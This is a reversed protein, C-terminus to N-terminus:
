RRRGRMAAAASVLGIWTLATAPEPIPRILIDVDSRVPLIPNFSPALSGGVLLVEASGPGFTPGLKPGAGQETVNLAASFLGSDTVVDFATSIDASDAAAQWFENADGRMGWEWLETGDATLYWTPISPDINTPDQFVVAISGDTTAIPAGTGAFVAAWEAVTPAGFTFNTDIQGDNDNDGTVSTIRTLFLATITPQTSTANATQTGSGFPAEVATFRIVGALYDGVDLVTNAGPALVTGGANVLMEFDDDELANLQGGVLDGATISASAVCPFGAILALFIFYRM